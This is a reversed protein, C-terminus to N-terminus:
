PKHMFHLLVSQVDHMQPVAVDVSFEYSSEKCDCMLHM